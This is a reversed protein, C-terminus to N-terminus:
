ELDEPLFQEVGENERIWAWFEAELEQKEQLYEKEGEAELRRRYTELELAAEEQRGAAFQQFAEELVAAKEDIAAKLEQKLLSVETALRSKAEPTLDPIAMNFHLTALRSSYEREKRRRFDALEAAHQQRKEALAQKILHEEQNRKQQVLRDIKMEILRRRLHLEEALLEQRQALELRLADELAAELLGNDVPSPLSKERGPPELQWGLKQFLSQMAPAIQGYSGWNLEPLLIIEAVLPGEETAKRYSWLGGGVLFLALAFVLSKLLTGKKKENM